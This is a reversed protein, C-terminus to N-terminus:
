EKLSKIEKHYERFAERDAEDRIKKHPAIAESLIKHFPDISDFFINKTIKLKIELRNHAEDLQEQKTKM